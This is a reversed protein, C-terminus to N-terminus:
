QYRFSMIIIHCDFIAEIHVTFYENHFYVENAKDYIKINFHTCTGIILDVDTHSLNQDLCSAKSNKGDVINSLNPITCIPISASQHM